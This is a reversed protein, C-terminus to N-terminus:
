PVSNRTSLVDKLSSHVKIPFQYKQLIGTLVVRCQAVTCPIYAETRPSDRCRSDFHFYKSFFLCIHIYLLVHLKLRSIYKIWKKRLFIYVQFVIRSSNYIEISPFTKPNGIKALNTALHRCRRWIFIGSQIDGVVCLSLRTKCIYIYSYLTAFSLSM